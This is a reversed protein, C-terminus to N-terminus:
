ITQPGAPTNVWVGNTVIFQYYTYSYTIIPTTPVSSNLVPVSGAVDTLVSQGGINTSSKNLDLTQQPITIHSTQCLVRVRSGEPLDYPSDGNPGPGNTVPFLANLYAIIQTGPDTMMTIDLTFAFGKTRILALKDDVYKKNAADYRDTCTNVSTIKAGGVDVSGAGAPLINLTIDAGVGPSIIEITSTTISINTVTLYSLVGVTEVGPASQISSGLSSLNVVPTGGILYSSSSSVLNFNDDVQWTKNYSQTWTLNHNTSGILTIGGGEAGSEAPVAQGAALQVNRDAIQLNTSAITTTTGRITVNGNISVPGVVSMNGTMTFDSNINVIGPGNGAPFFTVSRKSFVVDNPDFRVATYYGGNDLRIDFLKNNDNSTLFNTTTTVVLSINTNSGVYLGADHLINLRQTTYQTQTSNIQLFNDTLYNTITTVSDASTANGVFKLNPISPNLNIGPKVSTMGNFSTAFTFSGTTAIAILFNNNYLSAVTNTNNSNDRIVDVQWRTTSTTVPTPPGALIFNQGDVTFKLQSNTTDIWLDGANTSVPQTPSLQTVAVPKFINDLTYVNLLGTVKDYWLQGVLPARPQIGTSAFNEMMAILNDNYYQGYANVNKGILTLSTSRQDVTGDALTLLVTGDSNTITYAM